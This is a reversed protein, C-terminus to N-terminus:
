FLFSWLKFVSPLVNLQLDLTVKTAQIIDCPSNLLRAQFEHKRSIRSLSGRSLLTKPFIFITSSLLLGISDVPQCQSM